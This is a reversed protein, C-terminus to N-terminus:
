LRPNGVGGIEMPWHVFSLPMRLCYYSKQPREAFVWGVAGDFVAVADSKARAVGQENGLLSREWWRLEEEELTLKRM